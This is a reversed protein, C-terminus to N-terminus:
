RGKQLQCGVFVLKTSDVQMRLIGASKNSIFTNYYSRFKLSCQQVKSVRQKLERKCYVLLLNNNKYQGDVKIYRSIQIAQEIMEIWKEHEHSDQISIVVIESNIYLPCLKKPTHSPAKWTMLYVEIQDFTVYEEQRSMLVQNPDPKDIKLSKGLLQQTIRM